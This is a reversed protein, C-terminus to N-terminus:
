LRWVKTRVNNEGENIIKKAAVASSLHIPEMLISDADSGSLGSFRSESLMSFSSSLIVFVTHKTNEGMLKQQESM